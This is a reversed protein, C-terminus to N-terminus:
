TSEGSLYVNILSYVLKIEFNLYLILLIEDFFVNRHIIIRAYRIHEEENRKEWKEGHQLWIVAM